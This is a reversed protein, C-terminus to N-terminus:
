PLPLDRRRVLTDTATVLFGAQADQEILPLIRALVENVYEVKASGLRLTILSPRDAGSLAILGGFDLDQTLIVRGSRIAEAVIEIDEATPALIDSARLADHGLERLFAVTAPAIHLDALIKM